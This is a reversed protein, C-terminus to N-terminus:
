PWHWRTGTDLPKVAEWSLSVLPPDFTSFQTHPGKRSLWLGVPSIRRAPWILESSACGSCLQVCSIAKPSHSNANHAWHWACMSNVLWLPSTIVDNKQKKTVPKGHSALDCYWSTMIVAILDRLYHFLDWKTYQFVVDSDLKLGM